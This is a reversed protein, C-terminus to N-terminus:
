RARLLPGARLQEGRTRVGSSFVFLFKGIKEMKRSQLVRFHGQDAEILKKAFELGRVFMGGDLADAFHSAEAAAARFHDRAVMFHVFLLAGFFLFDGLPEGDPESDGPAKKSQSSTRM